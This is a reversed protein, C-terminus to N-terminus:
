SPALLRRCAYYGVIVCRYISGSARVRGESGMAQSYAVSGVRVKKADFRKVTGSQPRPIDGGAMMMMGRTATSQQLRSRCAGTLARQLMM